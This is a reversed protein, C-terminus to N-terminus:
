KLANSIALNLATTATHTLCFALFLVVVIWLVGRIINDWFKPEVATHLSYLCLAMIIDVVILFFLTAM